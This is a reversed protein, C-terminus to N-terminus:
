RTRSRTMATHSQWAVEGACLEDTSQFREPVFLRALGATVYAQRRGGAALVVDRHWPMIWQANTGQVGNECVDRGM